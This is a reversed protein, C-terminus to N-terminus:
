PTKRIRRFRREVDGDETRSNCILSMAAIREAATKFVKTKSSKRFDTLPRKALVKDMVMNHWRHAQVAVRMEKVKTKQRTHPFKISPTWCHIPPIVKLRTASSKPTTAGTASSKPTAAN